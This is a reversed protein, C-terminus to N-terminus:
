AREEKPVTIFPLISLLFVAGPVIATLSVLEPSQEKLYSYWAGNQAAIWGAVGTLAYVGGIIAGHRRPGTKESILSMTIVTATTALMPLLVVTRLLPGPVFAYVMAGVAAIAIGVIATKSRGISSIMFIMVAAVLTSFINQIMTSAGVEAYNRHEDNMMFWFKVNGIAHAALYVLMYTAILLSVSRGNTFLIRTIGVINANKWDLPTRNEEKLSEPLAFYTIVTMVLILAVNVYLLIESQFQYAYNSAGNGAVFGLSWVAGLIALVEARNKSTTLDAVYVSFGIMAWNTAVGIIQAVSLIVLDGTSAVVVTEALKFIMAILIFPRRGLADSWVSFIPYTIVPLVGTIILLWGYTNRGLERGLNVMNMLALGGTFSSLFAIVMVLLLARQRTM